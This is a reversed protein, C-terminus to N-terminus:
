PKRTRLLEIDTKQAAIDTSQKSVTASIALMAANVDHLTQKLTEVDKQVQTDIRTIITRGTQM